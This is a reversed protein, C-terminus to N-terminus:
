LLVLGHRIGLAVAETRSAAGLKGLISAVHFKVTHESIALRAAIEKNGLGSALMQLVELERRTLPEALETFPRSAPTAAPFISNIEGRHTVFLGTKAAQIAAVLQEPSSGTPLIAGIGARVAEALGGHALHDALLVVAAESTLELQDISGLVTEFHEGSADVVVVDAEGDMLHDALLEVSSVARAVEVGQAALINKLGARVLPSAAVIFARIV